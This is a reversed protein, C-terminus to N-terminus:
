RTWVSSSAVPPRTSSPAKWQFRLWSANFGVVEGDVAEFRGAFHGVRM